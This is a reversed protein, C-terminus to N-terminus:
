LFMNELRNEIPYRGGCWTKLEHLQLYGKTESFKRLLRYIDPTSLSTPQQLRVLGSVTFVERNQRFLVLYDISEHHTVSLVSYNPDHKHQTCWSHAKSFEPYTRVYEVNKFLVDAAIDKRIPHVSYVGVNFAQTLVQSLLVLLFLM